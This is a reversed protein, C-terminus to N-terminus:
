KLFNSYAESSNTPLVFVILDYKNKFFPELNTRNLQIDQVFVPEGLNLTHSKAVEILASIILDIENDMNSANIFAWQFNSKVRIEFFKKNVNDWRSQSKIVAKNGYEIDPPAIVHAEVQMMRSPVTDIGFSRLIPDSGVQSKNFLELINKKREINPIATARVMDAQEKSELSTKNTSVTKCLEMPTKNDKGLDLCPLRPFRNKTM